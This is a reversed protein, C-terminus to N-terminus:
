PVREAEAAPRSRGESGLRAPLREAAGPVRFNACCPDLVPASRSRLGRLGRLGYQPGCGSGDGGRPRPRVRRRAMKLTRRRGRM